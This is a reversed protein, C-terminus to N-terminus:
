PPTKVKKLLNIDEQTIYGLYRLLLFYIAVGIGTGFLLLFINSERLLFLYGSLVAVSFLVKHLGSFVDVMLQKRIFIPILILSTIGTLTLSIAAGNLGFLPVFVFLCVLYQIAGVAMLIGSLKPKGIGILISTLTYGFMLLFTGI